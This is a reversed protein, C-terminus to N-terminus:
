HGGPNYVDGEKEKTSDQFGKRIARLTKRRKKTSGLSKRTASETSEGNNNNVNDLNPLDRKAEKGGSRQTHQHGHFRRKKARGSRKKDGM